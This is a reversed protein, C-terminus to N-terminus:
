PKCLADYAVATMSGGMVPAFGPMKPKSQQYIRNAREDYYYTNERIAVRKARCDFTVATRSSTVDGGAMKKPKLFQVRLTARVSDAARKLSRQDLLVANGDGTKGLEKWRSAQAGLPSALPPALAAAALLALAALTAARPTDRMTDPM